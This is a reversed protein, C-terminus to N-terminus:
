VAVQGTQKPLQNSAANRMSYGGTIIIPSVSVFELDGTLQGVSKKKMSVTLGQRRATQIDYQPPSTLLHSISNDCTFVAKLLNVDDDDDDDNFIAVM